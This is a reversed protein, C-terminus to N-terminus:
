FKKMDAFEEHFTPQFMLRWHPKIGEFKEPYSLNTLLIVKHGRSILWNILPVIDKYLGPEGGSVYFTSVWHQVRRTIFDAWEEWTCEDFRKVEGHLFMPCYSCKYNCRTTPIIDITIGKKFIGPKNNLAGAFFHVYWFLKRRIKGILM